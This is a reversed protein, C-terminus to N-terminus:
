KTEKGDWVQFRENCLKVWRFNGRRYKVAFIQLDMDLKLVHLFGELGFGQKEEWISYSIIANVIRYPKISQIKLIKNEIGVSIQVRHQRSYNAGLVSGM